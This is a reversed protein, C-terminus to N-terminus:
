LSSVDDISVRNNYIKAPQIKIELPPIDEMTVQALRSPKPLPSGEPTSSFPNYLPYLSAILASILQRCGAVKFPEEVIYVFL